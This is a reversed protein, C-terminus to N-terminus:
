ILGIRDQEMDFGEPGAVEGWEGFREIDEPDLSLGLPYSEVADYCAGEGLLHSEFLVFRTVTFAPLSLCASRELFLPLRATAAAPRRFRALTVHPKFKRSEPAIGVRTLAQDLKEHLHKLPAPDAVGAWLLRPSRDPGFYGVGELKVDFPEGSVLGLASRIDEAKARDVEGIFRLTLHLQDETQWRVGELGGMLAILHGKIRDPLELGVFLRHM